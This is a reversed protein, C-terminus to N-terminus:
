KYIEITELMHNMIIIFHNYEEKNDAFVEKEFDGFKKVIYELYKM